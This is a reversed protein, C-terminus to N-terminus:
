CILSPLDMGNAQLPINDSVKPIAVDMQEIRVRKSTPEVISMLEDHGGQSCIEGVDIVGEEAEKDRRKGLVSMVLEIEAGCQSAPPHPTATTPQNSASPPQPLLPANILAPDISLTDLLDGLDETHTDIATLDVEDANKSEEGEIELLEEPLGPNKVAVLGFTEGSEVKSLVPLTGLPLRKGSQTAVLANWLELNSSVLQTHYSRFTEQVFPDGKKSNTAARCNRRHVYDHSLAVTVVIGSPM